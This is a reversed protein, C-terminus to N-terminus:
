AFSRHAKWPSREQTNQERKETEQKDWSTRVTLEVAGELWEAVTEVM